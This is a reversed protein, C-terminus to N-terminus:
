DDDQADFTVDRRNVKRTGRRAEDKADDERVIEKIGELMRSPDLPETAGRVLM